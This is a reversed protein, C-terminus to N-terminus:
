ISGRKEVRVALGQQSQAMYLGKIVLKQTPRKILPQEPGSPPVDLELLEDDLELEDLEPRVLEELLELEDEDLEDLEEEELLEELELLEDLPRLELEEEELLEPWAFPLCISFRERPNTATLVALPTNKDQRNNPVSEAAM